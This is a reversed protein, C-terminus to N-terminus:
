IKMKTKKKQNFFLSKDHGKLTRLSTSFLLKIRVQTNTLNKTLNKSM